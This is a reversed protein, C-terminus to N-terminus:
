DNKSRKRLYRFFVFIAVAFLIIGLIIEFLYKVFLDKYVGILYGQLALIITWIGAGLLTFLVFSKLPMKVFGAPLSILQRIGPILRGVFTSIAGYRLFYEEAKKLKPESLLLFKAFRKNVLKYIIPRGLWLALYYNVFAGLLSGMVGFIVVLFINMEGQQALYAAPPIVIESPFPIFSSEITMLVLIGLYGTQRSFELLIDVFSEFM